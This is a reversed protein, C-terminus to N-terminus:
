SPLGGGLRLMARQLPAEIRLPVISRSGFLVPYALRKWAAPQEQRRLDSRSAFLMSHRQRLEAYLAQHRKRAHALLRGNGHLRRGYVAGSTPVGSVGQEVLTMWLDWDEYGRALQWGGARELVERRFMSCVPYPNVYTLTWPLFRRPSKYRGTMNGFVTYDGWTFGAAPQRQLTEFMARLAGKILVDDADLPYVFPASTHRLGTSRAPGLGLNRELRHVQVGTRQLADLREVTDMDTSADDVIILEIDIDDQDHVSAIAEEVLPGDNHCPIIVAVRSM